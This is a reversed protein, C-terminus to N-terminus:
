RNNKINKFPKHWVTAFPQFVGNAKKKRTKGAEGRRKDTERGKDKDREKERGRERVVEGEREGGGGKEM